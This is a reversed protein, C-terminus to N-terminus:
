LRSIKKALNEPSIIEPTCVAPLEKACIAAFYSSSGLDIFRFQYDPLSADYRVLQMTNWGDNSVVAFSSLPCSMGKGFAKIYSEKLVWMRFFIMKQDEESPAATIFRKEEEGFFRDAISLDVKHIDEVDIGIEADHVACAVWSGSHTINFHFPNGILSPKGFENQVLSAANLTQGTQERYGYHLLMEAVLARCKDERRLFRDVRKQREAFAHQYFLDYTDISLNDANSVAIIKSMVSKQM